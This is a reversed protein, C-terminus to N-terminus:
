AAPACYLELGQLRPSDSIRLVTFHGGLYTVRHGRALGEMFPIHFSIRRQPEAAASETATESTSTEWVRLKSCLPLVQWPSQTGGAKRPREIRIFTETQRPM